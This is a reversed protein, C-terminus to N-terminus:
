VTGDSCRTSVEFKVHGFDITKQEEGGVEVGDMAEGDRFVAATKKRLGSAGRRREIVETLLNGKWSSRIRSRAM